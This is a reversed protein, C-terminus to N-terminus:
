ASRVGAVLGVVTALVRRHSGGSSPDAGPNGSADVVHAGGEPWLFKAIGFTALAM